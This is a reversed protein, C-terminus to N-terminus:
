AAKITSAPPTSGGDLSPSARTAPRISEIENPLARIRDSLEQMFEHPNQPRFVFTVGDDRTAPAPYLLHHIGCLLEVSASFQRRSHDREIRLVENERELRAAERAYGDLARGFDGSEHDRQLKESLKGCPRASTGEAFPKVIAIV